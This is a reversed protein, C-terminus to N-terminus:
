ETSSTDDAVNESVPAISSGDSNDIIVNTESESFTAEFDYTTDPNDEPTLSNNDESIINQEEDSFDAPEQTKEKRPYGTFIEKISNSLVQLPKTETNETVQRSSSFRGSSSWIWFAVVMGTILLALVGAIIIRTHEKKKRLTDLM